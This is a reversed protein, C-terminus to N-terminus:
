LVYKSTTGPERFHTLPGGSSLVQLFVCPQFINVINWYCQEGQDCYGIVSCSPAKENTQKLNAFVFKLICVSECLKKVTCRLLSVFKSESACLSILM